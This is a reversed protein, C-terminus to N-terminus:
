DVVRRLTWQGDRCTLEFVGAYEVGVPHAIVRWVEREGLLDDGLDEAVSGRAIRVQPSNWWDATEVWRTEVETVLWHRRRWTFTVPEGDLHRVEIADDYRRM